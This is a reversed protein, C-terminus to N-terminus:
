LNQAVSHNVYLTLRQGAKLTRASTGKNWNAIQQTSVNYRRGIASLTEGSRVHHSVKQTSGGTKGKSAVRSTSAAKGGRLALTQGARVSNGKLNNWRKINAVSVGQKKAISSLTEGKRVTYRQAGAVRGKGAVEARDLRLEKSLALFEASVNSRSLLLTQGASLADKKLNNLSRIQAATTKHQRAVAFLTDGHKVTYTHSITSKPTDLQSLQERFDIPLRDPVLLRHPGEPDTAQRKFGPNLQYLEKLSVGAISAAEVMDVQGQTEVVRFFPKDTIPRLSVGFSEPSLIVQAVALFRPVYARTEAPLQLSWFDTPLGAALNRNVARQVAGPGANYAALALQWDGFKEYLMTLFDYGARTSEIIDRRGDYWSNQKLGMIRGTGPIFQWIGAANAHSYAFPDYASEIVPLLALEAPLGRKEAESVTYHLYRSGRLAVRNLYADNRLLWQRQVAIRDNDVSLDMQFNRRLRDWLNGAEALGEIDLGMESLDLDSEEITLLQDDDNDASAEDTDEDVDPDDTNGEIDEELVLTNLAPKTTPSQALAVREQNSPAVYEQPAGFIRDLFGAHAPSAFALLLAPMALLLRSIGLDQSLTMRRLTM